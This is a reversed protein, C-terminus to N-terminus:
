KGRFGHKNMKMDKIVNWAQGNYYDTQHGVSQPAVFYMQKCQVVHLLNHESSYECSPYVANSPDCYVHFWGCGNFQNINQTFSDYDFLGYSDKYWTWSRISLYWSNESHDKHKDKVRMILLLELAEIEKWINQSRNLTPRPKRRFSGRM